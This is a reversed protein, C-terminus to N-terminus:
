AAGWLREAEVPRGEFAAIAVADALTLRVAAASRAIRATTYLSTRTLGAIQPLRWGRLVLTDILHERDIWHLSEAPEHGLCCAQWTIRGSRGYTDRLPPLVQAIM